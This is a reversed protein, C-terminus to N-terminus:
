ANQDVSTPVYSTNIVSQTNFKQAAWSCLPGKLVEWAATMINLCLTNGCMDVIPMTCDLTKSEIVGETNSVEFGVVWYSPQINPYLEWRSVRVVFNNNFDTLSIDDTTDTPIFHTLQPNVVNTTAWDTVNVKVNEWAADLVDQSTYEAPLTNVDVDTVHVSLRANLLCRVEYKVHVNSTMADPSYDAVRVSFNSLFDELSILTTM